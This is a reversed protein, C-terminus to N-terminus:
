HVKPQKSMQDLLPFLQMQIKLTLLVLAVHAATFRHKLIQLDLRVTCIMMNIIKEAVMSPSILSM